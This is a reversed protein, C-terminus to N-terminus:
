KGFFQCSSHFSHVFTQGAQQGVLGVERACSPDGFGPSACDIALNSKHLDITIKFPVDTTPLTEVFQAYGFDNLSNYTTNALVDTGAPLLNLIVSRAVPQMNENVDLIVSGPTGTYRLTFQVPYNEGQCLLYANPTSGDLLLKLGYDAQALLAIGTSGATSAPPVIQGLAPTSVVLITLIPTLLFAKV